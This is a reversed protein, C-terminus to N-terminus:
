VKEDRKKHSNSAVNKNKKQHCYGCNEVICEVDYEDQDM